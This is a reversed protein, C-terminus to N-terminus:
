RVNLWRPAFGWQLRISSAAVGEARLVALFTDGQSKALEKAWAKFFISAKTKDGRTAEMEAKKSDPVSSRTVVTFHTRAKFVVGDFKSEAAAIGESTFVGAKDEVHMTGPQSVGTEAKGAQLQPAAFGAVLLALWSFRLLKRMEFAGFLDPIGFPM